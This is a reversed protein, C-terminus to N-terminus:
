IVLWFKLPMRVIKDNVLELNSKQSVIIGYDYGGINKENNKIKERDVMYKLQILIWNFIFIILNQKISNFNEYLMIM